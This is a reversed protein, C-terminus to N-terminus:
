SVLLKINKFAAPENAINKMIWDKKISANGFAGIYIRRAQLIKTFSLNFYM